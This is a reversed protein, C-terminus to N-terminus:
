LNEKWKIYSKKKFWQLVIKIGFVLFNIVLAGYWVYKVRSLPNIVTPHEGLHHGKREHRRVVDTLRFQIIITKAFLIHKGSLVSTIAPPICSYIFVTGTRCSYLGPM